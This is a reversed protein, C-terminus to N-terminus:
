NYKSNQEQEKNVTNQTKIQDKMWEINDTSKPNVDNLIALYYSVWDGLLLTSLVQSLKSEGVAGYKQYGVGEKALLDAFLDIRKHTHQNGFSNELLVFFLDDKSRGPWRVGEVANHAAEPFILHYAFNKSDENIQTQWRYAVSRLIGSAAMVPIHDFFSFALGKALNKDTEVKISLGQSFRGCFGLSEELGLDGGVCGLAKFLGLIAGLQEGLSFRPPTNSDYDYFPLNNAQARRELEGGERESIIFMKDTKNKAQEFLGLTEETFGSHSILVVLSHKSVWRPLSYDNIIELPLSFDLLDNALSAAIGSGGMGGMVINKVGGLKDSLDLGLVKNHSEKLRGPLASIHKNLGSKDLEKIKSLDDLRNM